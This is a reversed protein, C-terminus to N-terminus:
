TAFRSHIRLSTTLNSRSRSISALRLIVEYSSTIIVHFGSFRGLYFHCTCTRYCYRSSSSLCDDINPSTTRPRHPSSLSSLLIGDRSPTCPAEGRLRWIQSRFWVTLMGVDSLQAQAQRIGTMRRCRRAQTLHHPCLSTSMRHNFKTDM